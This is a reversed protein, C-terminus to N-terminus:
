RQRAEGQVGASARICASITTCLARFYGRLRWINNLSSGIGRPTDSRNRKSELTLAAQVAREHRALLERNKALRKNSNCIFYAVKNEFCYKVMEAHFAAFSPAELVPFKGLTVPVQEDCHVKHEELAERPSKTRKKQRKPQVGPLADEVPRVIETITAAEEGRSVANDADEDSSNDSPPHRELTSPM